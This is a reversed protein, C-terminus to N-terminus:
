QNNAGKENRALERCELIYIASSLRNLARILDVREGGFAAAASLELERAQTRLRNLSLVTEGATYDLVPHPIGLREPIHHSYDRLEEPTMGLIKEREEDLAKERVEAGLIARTLELIDQLAEVLATNQAKAAACQVLMLDAQFSDLRGRLAIRPHTKEVLLNGRLHTMHEPKEEYGQGTAADVYTYVGNKKVPYRPMGRKDRADAASKEVLQIGRGKLFERALPTVYTGAEVPYEKTDRPLCAARLDAETLIKM